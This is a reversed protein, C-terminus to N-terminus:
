IAESLQGTRSSSIQECYIQSWREVDTKQKRSLNIHQQLSVHTCDLITQILLDGNCRIAAFEQRGIIQQLMNMEESRVQTHAKCTLLLHERTEDGMNCLKCTASVENRNFRVTNSQLIYTRTLLRAKLEARRVEHPKPNTSAWLNHPHGIPASQVQIYKATSQTSLEEKWTSEWYDTTANRFTTKWQHKSPPNQLLDEPLPLNYKHLIERISTSFSNRDPNSMAM